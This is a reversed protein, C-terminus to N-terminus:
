TDNENEKFWKALNEGEQNLVKGINERSPDSYLLVTDDAYMLM